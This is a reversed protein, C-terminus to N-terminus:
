LIGQLIVDVPQILFTISQNGISQMQLEFFDEKDTKSLRTQISLFKLAINPIGTHEKIYVVCHDGRRGVRWLNAFELTQGYFFQKSM